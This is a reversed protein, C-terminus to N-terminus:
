LRCVQQLAGIILSFHYRVRGWEVLLPMHVAGPYRLRHWMTKVVISTISRLNRPAVSGLWRRLSIVGLAELKRKAYKGNREMYNYVFDDDLYVYWPTALTSAVGPTRSFVPREHVPKVMRVNRDTRVIRYQYGPYNAAHEIMEGKWWMRIPIRYGDEDGEEAIRGLERVLEASAAEDSDLILLYPHRAGNILQNKACAFDKLSGDPNKCEKSQTIVRAGYENAIKLTDDASGGDCVVIDDIEKVSELARRLTKGSNFTLIGVAVPITRTSKM